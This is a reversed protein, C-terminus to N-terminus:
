IVKSGTFQFTQLALAVLLIAKMTAMMAGIGPINMKKVFCLLSCSSRPKISRRKIFHHDLGKVKICGCARFGKNMHRSM